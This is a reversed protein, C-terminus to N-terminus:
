VATAQSTTAWESQLGPVAELYHCSYQLHHQDMLPGTVRIYDKSDLAFVAGLKICYRLAPM